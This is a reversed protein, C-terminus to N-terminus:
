RYIDETCHCMCNLVNNGPFHEMISRELSRHYAASLLPGGQLASGCLGIQSQVDVKVGDM